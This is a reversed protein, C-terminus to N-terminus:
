NARTIVFEVRYYDFAETFAKKYAELAEDNVEPAIGGELLMLAFGTFMEAITEKNFIFYATNKDYSQLVMFASEIDHGATAGTITMNLGDISYNKTMSVEQEVKLVSYTMTGNEFKINRFYRQAAYEIFKGSIQSTQMITPPVEEGNIIGGPIVIEDKIPKASYTINSYNWDGTLNTEEALRSYRYEGNTTSIILISDQLTATGALSYGDEFYINVQNGDVTLNGNEDYDMGARVSQDLKVFADWSEIEYAEEIYVATLYGVRCAIAGVSLEETELFTVLRKAFSVPIVVSIIRFPTGKSSARSSYLRKESFAATVIVHLLESKYVM